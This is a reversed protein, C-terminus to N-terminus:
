EGDRVGRRAAEVDEARWEAGPDEVHGRAQEEQCLCAALRGVHFAGREVAELHAEADAGGEEGGRVRGGVREGQLDKATASVEEGEKGELAARRNALTRPRARISSVNSRGSMSGRRTTMSPMVGCTSAPRNGALAESPSRTRTSASQKASPWSSSPATSSCRRLPSGSHASAVISARGLSRQRASNSGWM